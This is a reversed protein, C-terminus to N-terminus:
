SSLVFVTYFYRPGAADDVIDSPKAFLKRKWNTQAYKYGNPPIDTYEYTNYQDNICYHANDQAASLNYEPFPGKTRIPNCFQRREIPHVFQMSKLSIVNPVVSLLISCM